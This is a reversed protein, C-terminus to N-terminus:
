NITEDIDKRLYYKVKKKYKKVKNEALKLKRLWNKLNKEATKKRLAVHDIKIKPKPVSLLNVGKFKSRIKEVDVDDLPDHRFGSHDFGYCHMLEHAFLQSITSIKMDPTLRLVMDPQTGYQKNFYAYGSYSGKRYWKKHNQMNKIIVKLGKWRWLSGETRKIASYCMSFIQKLKKTDYGSTNSIVKM